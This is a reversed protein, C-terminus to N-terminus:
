LFGLDKTNSVLIQAKTDSIVAQTIMKNLGEASLVFLYRHKIFVHLYMCRYM